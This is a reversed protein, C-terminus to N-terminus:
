ARVDIQGGLGTAQAALADGPGGQSAAQLLQLAAAGEQRQADMAKKAVAVGIQDSVRGQQISSFAAALGMDM